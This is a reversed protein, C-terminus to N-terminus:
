TGVEIRRVDEACMARNRGASKAAYLARDARVLLAALTEQPQLTASGISVTCTVSANASTALVAGELAARLREAVSIATGADAGPLLVAFEEGGLRACVDINRIVKQTCKVIEALVQDGVAHGFSDNIAKFHDADFLLVSLDGGTRLKRMHEREALQFFARRSCAGTLHDHDAAYAAKALSRANTMMVAGLTLGPFALTGLSFYVTNWVTSAFLPVALNPLLMYHVARVAYGFALAFAAVVTFLFPYHPQSAPIMRRVTMGIAFCVGGHFISVTIVRVGPLDVGYHFVLIVAMVVAMGGALLKTPFTKGEYRRFGALMMSIAAMFLLNAAEISLVDPLMGRGAYGLLAAVALINARFWERTGSNEECTVSSLVFLMVVSLAMTELILSVLSLM